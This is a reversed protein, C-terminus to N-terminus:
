MILGPGAQTTMCQAGDRRIVTNPKQLESCEGQFTLSISPDVGITGTASWTWFNYLRALKVTANAPLTLNHNVSYTGGPLIKGSYSSNGYDYVINGKVMGHAYTELPKDGAYGNHQVQQTISLGNNAANADNITSGPVIVAKLTYNKAEEPKWTFEVAETAGNSLGTVQKSEVLTGEEYLEVSFNDADNPGSNTVNVTVTNSVNDWIKTM